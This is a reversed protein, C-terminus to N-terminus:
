LSEIARPKAEDVGSWSRYDVRDIHKTKHRSRKAARRQATEMLAADADSICSPRPQEVDTSSVSALCESVRQAAAPDIAHVDELVM